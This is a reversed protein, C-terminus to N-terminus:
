TNKIVQVKFASTKRQHIKWLCVWAYWSREAIYISM